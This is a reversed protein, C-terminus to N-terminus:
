PFSVELTIPFHDSPYRNEESDRLITADIPKLDPTIFFYDIKNGEIAGIKFGSFTGVVTDEPHLARFPDILKVPPSTEAIKGLLYHIPKSQEGANLDGMMVAPIKKEKRDVIRQAILKAAEMRAESSLHDFHTNYVYISRHTEKQTLPDKEIFRGWTVVRPCGAKTGKSGPVEPTASLWFTGHDEPALTWRDKRYFLGSMESSTSPVADREKQLVAYEPLKAQLFESQAAQMEQTGLFDPMQRRIVNSVMERRFPWSNPGDDATGCRLNFSMFQITDKGGLKEPQQPETPVKKMDAQAIVNFTILLLLSFILHRYHLRTM